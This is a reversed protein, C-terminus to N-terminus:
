WLEVANLIDVRGYQKIYRVVIERYAGFANETYDAEIDFYRETENSM